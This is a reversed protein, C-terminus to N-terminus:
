QNKYNHIILEIDSMTFGYQKRLHGLKSSGPTSEPINLEKTIINVPVDYRQSIEYLTNYGKVEITSDINHHEDNLDEKAMADEAKRQIPTDERIIEKTIRHKENKNLYEFRERGPAIEAMDEKIIFPFVIFLVTIVSLASGCIIRGSKNGIIKKYLCIIMKWHLIIHLVLLVILVIAIWLHITGWEHRDLGWFSLDVNRGYKIWRDEGSLLVYKILLGIGALIAMLVFMMVDIIFNIKGKM